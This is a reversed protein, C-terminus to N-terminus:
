KPFDVSGKDRMLPDNLLIDVVDIDGKKPIDSSLDILKGSLRMRNSDWIPPILHWASQEGKKYMFTDKKNPLIFQYMFRGFYIVIIKSPLNERTFEDRKQYTFITPTKFTTPFSFAYVRAFHGAGPLLYDLEESMLINLTPSYDAIEEKFLISYGIKYLCKMVHLPTYTNKTATLVFKNEKENFVPGDRGDFTFIDKEARFALRLNKDPSKYIPIGAQGKMKDITRFVGIFNAFSNEFLGFRENCCDCEHFHILNKDGMLQPLLHAIKTFTVEPKKKKCFICAREDIYKEKRKSPPSKVIVEPYYYKSFDQFASYDGENFINNLKYWEFKKATFNYITFDFSDVRENERQQM